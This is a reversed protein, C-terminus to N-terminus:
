EACHGSAVPRLQRARAARVRAAVVGDPIAFGGPRSADTIAAFVTALVAGRADIVPGGSNGPRIKGRLPTISRPVTGQGYANQTRVTGTQGIRGPQVNFPGDLPYGLIAASTGSPASPAFPLSRLRLGPVRLVAIDDHVDFDVVEATLDRGVGRVQVQTHDEGAVVHANTVVLGPGVDWGSGEIGLGCAMGYVRVVSRSARRVAGSRLIARTPAPVTAAPGHVSPLPDIRALANLVPGSPPLAKDLARLIESGRIESRLPASNSSDLAVAGVIWAIGLAVCATLAAGMLGDIWHLVPMRHSLRGRSGLVELVNAFVAGVLLAGGLGLLPAYQSRSGQNLLLPALRTGLFAGLAFGALSMAGVFFGQLYGYCGLLFTFGVIAWDLGTM